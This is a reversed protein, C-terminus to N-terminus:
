QKGLRQNVVWEGLRIERKPKIIKKAKPQEDNLVTIKLSSTRKEFNFEVAHRSDQLMPHDTIRPM